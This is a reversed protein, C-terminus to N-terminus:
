KDVASLYFKHPFSSQADEETLYFAPYYGCESNCNYYTFNNIMKDFSTAELEGYNYSGILLANSPHLNIPVIWFPKKENYRKRAISKSIRNFNM